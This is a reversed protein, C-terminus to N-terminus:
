QPISGGDVWGPVNWQKPPSILLLEEETDFAQGNLGVDGYAQVCLKQTVRTEFDENGRTQSPSPGRSASIGQTAFHKQLSSLGQDYVMLSDTQTWAHLIGPPYAEVHAGTLGQQDHGRANFCFEYVESSTSSMSRRVNKHQTILV